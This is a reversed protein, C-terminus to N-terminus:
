FGRPCNKIFNRGDANKPREQPFREIKASVGWVVSVAM